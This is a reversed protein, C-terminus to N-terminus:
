ITIRNLRLKLRLNRSTARFWKASKSVEVLVASAYIRPKSPVIQNILTTDYKLCRSGTNQRAKSSTGLQYARMSEGDM